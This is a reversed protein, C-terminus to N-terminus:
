PVTLIAETARTEGSRNRATVAVVVTQGRPLDTLLVQRDSYLGPEHISPDGTQLRWTIRYNTAVASPAWTVLATEPLLPEVTLETVPSPLHGDAPRTFGFQYWRGDGPALVRDLEVRLVRLRCRLNRLARDREQLAHREQSLCEQRVGRAAELADAGAQLRAATLDTGPTEREAHERLYAALKALTVAHDLRSLKLTGGTFGAIQWRANWTRGLTPKLLDVANAALRAAATQESKVTARAATLRGRVEALEALKGRISPREASAPRGTIVELDALLAASTIDEIGLSRALADIGRIAAKSLTILEDAKTPIIM